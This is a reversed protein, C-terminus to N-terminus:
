AGREDGTVGDLELLLIGDFPRVTGLMPLPALGDGHLTASKHDLRM